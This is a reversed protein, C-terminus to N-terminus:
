IVHGVHERARRAEHRMYERTERSERTDHRVYERARYEEHQIHERTGCAERAEYWVQEQAERAEQGVDITGLTSRAARTRTGQM